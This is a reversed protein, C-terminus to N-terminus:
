PAAVKKVDYQRGSLDRMHVVPNNDAFRGLLIQNQSTVRGSKDQLIIAFAWATDSGARWLGTGLGQVTATGDASLTAKKDGPWVYSGAIREAGHIATTAPVPAAGAAPADFAASKEMLVAVAPGKADKVQARLFAAIRTRIGAFLNDRADTLAKEDAALKTLVPSAAAAAPAVGPVPEKVRTRKGPPSYLDMSEYTDGKVWILYPHKGGWIALAINNKPDMMTWDASGAESFLKGEPTIRCTRKKDRSLWSGVIGKGASATAAQPAVSQDPDLGTVRKAEEMLAARAEAPATAARKLIIEAAVARLAKVKERRENEKAAQFHEWKALVDRVGAPLPDDPSPAAPAPAPAAPDPPIDLDSFDFISAAEKMEKEKDEATPPAAHLASILLVLAIGTNRLSPNM